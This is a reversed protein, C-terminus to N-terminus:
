EGMKSMEFEEQMSKVFEEGLSINNKVFIQCILIDNKFSKRFLTTDVKGRTFGKELLFSSHREYWARPAQKLGYLSKKLKFVHEPYISDEFGPPNIFMCRKKSTVM